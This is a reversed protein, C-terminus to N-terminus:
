CYEWDPHDPPRCERPCKATIPTQTGRYWTNGVFTGNYRQTPWPRWGSPFKTCYYSDHSMVNGVMEPWLVRKLITQDVGHYLNNSAMVLMKNRMKQLAELSPLSSSLLRAVLDSSSKNTQRHIDWRAGWMGALIQALHGPHDRMLHFMKSSALWELVASHEREMFKMDSDRVILVDVTPDGLPTLRWVTPYVRSINYFPFPLNTVDCVRFHEHEHLLPCLISSKGRPDTFLWVKWGPYLDIKTSSLSESLGVWYGPNSGFLSYSIVRQHDGDAFARRGCTGGVGRLRRPRSNEHAPEKPQWSGNGDQLCRGGDWWPLDDVSDGSSSKAVKRREGSIESVEDSRNDDPAHYRLALHATQSGTICVTAPSWSRGVTYAYVFLFLAPIAAYYTWSGHRFPPKGM